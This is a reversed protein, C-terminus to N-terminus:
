KEDGPRSLAGMVFMKIEDVAQIYGGGAQNVRDARRLVERLAARLRENEGIEASLRALVPELEPVLDIMEKHLRDAERGAEEARRIIAAHDEPDIDDLRVVLKDDIRKMSM